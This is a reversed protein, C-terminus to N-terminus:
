KNSPNTSVTWSFALLGVHLTRDSSRSMVHQLVLLTTHGHAFDPRFSSGVDTVNADHSCNQTMPLVSFLCSMPGAVVSSCSDAVHRTTATLDWM